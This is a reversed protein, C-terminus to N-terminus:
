GSRKGSPELDPDVIDRGPPVPQVPLDPAALNWTAGACTVEPDQPPLPPAAAEGFGRGGGPHRRDHHTPSM